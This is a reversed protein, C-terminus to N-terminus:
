VPVTATTLVRDFERLSRVVAVEYLMERLRGHWYAQIKTPRQGPRKFEIFAVSGDPRLLLRDPFGVTGYQLKVLQCGARAAM